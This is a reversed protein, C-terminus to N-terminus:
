TPGRANEDDLVLVPIMQLSQHTSPAIVNLGARVGHRRLDDDFLVPGVDVPEVTQWSRVGVPLRKSSLSVFEATDGSEVTVEGFPSCM